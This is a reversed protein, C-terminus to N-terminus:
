EDLEPAPRPGLRRTLTVQNGAANFELANAYLQYIRLGRGCELNGACTNGSGPADSLRTHWDFGPGSDGVVLRAETDSLTLECTVQGAPHGACGHLVANNLAERLLLQLAFTHPEVEPGTLCASVEACLQDLDALTAAITWAHRHPAPM